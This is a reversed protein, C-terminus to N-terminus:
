RMAIPGSSCSGYIKAFQDMEPAWAAILKGEVVLSRHNPDDPISNKLMRKPRVQSLALGM